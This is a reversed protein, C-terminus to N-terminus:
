SRGERMFAELRRQFEAQAEPTQLVGFRGIAREVRLLDLLFDHIANAAAEASNTASSQADLLTTINATGSAYADTVLAYNRLAAESADRTLGIAAYSSAATEMAARVRQDVALRVGDRQIALRDLDIGTQTRTAARSLGSFLPLSAQLRFQWSLDEQQPFLTSFEPPLTPPGSGAGSRNFENTLGGELTLSPLWFARGAATYQRQQAEFSAELQALEPSVRLAEGVLFRTLIGLRAPNDFWTLATSDMALLAPEGLRVPRHAVARDLPRNLVRNLQLAAIRVQSEAAILERRASAVEGQWRYVDARSSTGVGERLRAVELNERTRLLNSRQVDAQTQARLVDLYAEGADLVVDLRLANREAVRGEQLSRESGYAAWSQEAYLPVSFSLAGELRRQPELGFSSAATEKRTVTQTLSSGVQPLLNSRALRVNQEGSQLELEAAAVDLNSVLAQRMTEALSLTDAPGASDVGVLVADTLVSWGPSFGIRRATELNLALRPSSVLRVPLRGADEGDIIRQLDVAVRRARRQLNEPPEYSALVGLRLDPDALYSLTPLRREILGSLLRSFEADSMAAIPTVYVADVGAPLAALIEAAQGGSPVVVAESGTARVLATASAELGPIGRLLDRDLLLALKRFPILRHFEAISTGVPYSQDVYALRPIGSVGDRQPLDQWSADIVGAAIAPKPPSGARALLHSGVAGLTVVVSVSSDNLANHLVRQLGAVTGDGTRPPLMSIEGSRFFSLIERQFAEVLPQFRPSAQDLILVVRVPARGQASLSSPSFHALVSCLIPFGVRGLRSACRRLSGLPRVQASPM